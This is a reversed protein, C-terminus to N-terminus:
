RPSPRALVNAAYLVLACGIPFLLENVAQAAVKPRPMRPDSNLYLVLVLTLGFVTGAALGSLSFHRLRAWARSGLWAVVSGLAAYEAARIILV